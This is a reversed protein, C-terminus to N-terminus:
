RMRILEHNMYPNGQDDRQILVATINTVAYGPSWGM